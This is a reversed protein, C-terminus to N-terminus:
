LWAKLDTATTEYDQGAITASTRVRHARIPLVDGPELTYNEVNGKADEILVVGGSNAYIARPRPTLVMDLEIRMHQTAPSELGPAFQQTRFPDEVPM